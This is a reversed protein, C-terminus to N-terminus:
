MFILTTFEYAHLLQLWARDFLSKQLAMQTSNRSMTELEM